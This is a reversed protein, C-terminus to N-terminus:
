REGLDKIRGNGVTRRALNSISCGIQFRQAPTMQHLIASQEPSIEEIAGKLAKRWTDVEHNENM